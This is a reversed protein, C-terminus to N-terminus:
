EHTEEGTDIIVLLKKAMVCKGFNDRHSVFREFFLSYCWFGAFCFYFIELNKIEKWLLSMCGDPVFHYTKSNKETKRQNESLFINYYM